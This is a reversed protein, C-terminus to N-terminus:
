QKVLVLIIQKFVLKNQIIILCYLFTRLDFFCKLRLKIINIEPTKTTRAIVSANGYCRVNPYGGRQQRTLMADHQTHVPRTYKSGGLASTPLLHPFSCGAPSKGQYQTLKSPKSTQQSKNTLDM